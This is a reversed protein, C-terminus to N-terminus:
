LVGHDTHLTIEWPKRNFFQLDKFSKRSRYEIQGKTFILNVIFLQEGGVGGLIKVSCILGDCQLLVPFVMIKLIGM